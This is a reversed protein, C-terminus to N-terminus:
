ATDKPKLITTLRLVQVGADFPYSIMTRIFQWCQFHSLVCRQLSNLPHIIYPGSTIDQSNNSKSFLSNHYSRRLPCDIKESRNQNTQTEVPLFSHLDKVSSSAGHTSITTLMTHNVYTRISQTERSTDALASLLFLYIREYWFGCLGGTNNNNNNNYIDHSYM